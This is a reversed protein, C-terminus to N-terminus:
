RTLALVVSGDESLMRVDHREPRAMHASLVSSGCELASCRLPEEGEVAGCWTPRRGDHDLALVGGRIVAGCSGAEVPTTTVSPVKFRVQILARSEPERWCRHIRRESAVTQRSRLTSAADCVLWVSPAELLPSRKGDVVGARAWPQSASTM